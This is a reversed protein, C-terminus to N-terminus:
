GGGDSGPRPLATAMESAHLHAIKWGAATKRLVLTRRNIFGPRDDLHFTVIAVDGLVEMRLERPQIDMYPGKSRGARIQEFVRKFQDEVEIRGNARNARERPYFVTADETFANRFKEWDLNDFAAIFESLFKRIEEQEVQAPRAQARLLHPILLLLV